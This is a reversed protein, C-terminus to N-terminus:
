INRDIFVYFIYECVLAVNKIEDNYILVFFEYHIYLQDCKRDGNTNGHKLNTIPYM